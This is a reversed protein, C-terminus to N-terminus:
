QKFFKASGIRKGTTEDIAEVIYLGKLLNSVSQQILNTNSANITKVIGGTSTVINIKVPNSYTKGLNIHIDETTNTPYVMFTVPSTNDTYDFILNKSIQTDGSVLNQVLRYTIQNSGPALDTFTYSGSGNSQLSDITIFSKTDNTSKEIIFKTFNSENDTKWTLKIGTTVKSGSFGLLKYERGPAIGISLYFRDHAYSAKNNDVNFSYEPNHVVDLSDNTYKDKLYITYREDINKKIPATIKYLGFDSFTVILNVRKLKELTSTYNVFCGVSDSSLSYFIDGQGSAAIYSADEGIIFKRDATKDFNIDTTNLLATDKMLEMRLTPMPNANDDTENTAATTAATQLTKNNDPSVALKALVSGNGHKVNFVPLSPISATYLSYAVKITEDFKLATNANTQVFFGQGSLIYKSVGPQATNTSADYTAYRTSFSSGGTSVNKILMWYFKYPVTSGNVTYVKQLDITSAYPNGVLNFGGKTANAHYSLTAPTTITGDSSSFYVPPPSKFNIINATFAANTGSGKYVGGFFNLTAFADAPFPSVFPNVLDRSGRFYLEIGNAMPVSENITSFGKFENGTVVNPNTSVPANEDYIYVSSNNSTTPSDDFGNASGGPGTVFTNIKGGPTGPAVIPKLNYSNPVAGIATNTINAVPSSLLLYRRIGGQIYRQVNISGNITGASLNGISADGASTSLITLATTGAAANSTVSLTASSTVSLTSKPSVSFNGGTNFNMTKTSAGTFTVNNFKTGSSTVDSLVQPGTGNFTTTGTGQVYGNNANNTYNGGIFLNATSLNLVGGTNNTLSNAVNINGTGQIVNSSNTWDHGIVATPNPSTANFLVTPATTIFDNGVTLPGSNITKTGTNSLILNQYTQPDTKLNAPANTYINQDAGSYNVTSTGGASSNYFDIYGAITTGFPPSAISIANANILNLTASSGAPPDITFTPTGPGVILAGTSQTIIKGNITTIGGQLSFNGDIGGLKVLIGIAISNVTVDGDINLHALTSIFRLNFFNLLSTLSATSGVQISGCNLIGEGSVPVSYSTLLTPQLIIAGAVKLTGKINLPISTLAVLANYTISACAATSSTVTPANFAALAVNMLVPDNITPVIGTTWNAPDDWDYVAPSGSLHVGVWSRTVQAKVGVGLCILILLLFCRFLTKM